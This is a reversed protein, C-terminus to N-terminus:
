GVKPAGLDDGRRQLDEAGFAEGGRACLVDGGLGVDGFAREVQVEAGFFLNIDCGDLVGNVLEVFADLLAQLRGGTDALSYGGEDGGPELEPELAAAEVAQEEGDAALGM